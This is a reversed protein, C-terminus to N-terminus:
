APLNLRRELTVYVKYPKGSILLGVEVGDVTEAVSDFLVYVKNESSSKVIPIYSPLLEEDTELKEGMLVPPLSTALFIEPLVFIRDGYVTVKYITAALAERLYEATPNKVEARKVKFPVTITTYVRCSTGKEVADMLEFISISDTAMQQQAFMGFPSLLLFFAVTYKLNHAKM